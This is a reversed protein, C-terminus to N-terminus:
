AASTKTPISENALNILSISGVSAKDMTLESTFYNRRV